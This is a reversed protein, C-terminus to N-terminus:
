VCFRIGFGSDRIKFDLVFGSDRIVFRPFEFRIGFGSDRIHENRQAGRIGSEPNSFSEPNTVFGLIRGDKSFVTYRYM